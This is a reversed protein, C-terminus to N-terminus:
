HAMVQTLDEGLFESAAGVRVSALARADLGASSIFEAPSRQMIDYPYDTGTFIRGPLATEALFKLYAPDYVNSDYFMQRATASPSAHARQKFGDTAHWGTDLRGLISGLAGGGHSFGIRLAPFRDLVGGMLISAAAMAVDVPFLAFPVYFPPPDITKAAVPHLAHVFVCMGLEEAAAWFPDFAADGPLRGMINSGIEVGSLGFESKLRPLAQAAAVPDQLPVAGLGRFRAPHSAALSAILHNSADCLVAADKPDFWYSLLEPMPSLVQMSVGDRAMDELRRDADWSRWDLDRFLTDGILLSGKQSSLCHMCPWRPQLEERPSGPLMAPSVHSHLDILPIM